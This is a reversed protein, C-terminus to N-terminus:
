DRMIRLVACGRSTAPSEHDGSSSEDALNLTVHPERGSAAPVVDM